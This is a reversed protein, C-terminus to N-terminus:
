GYEWRGLADVEFSAGWRDSGAPTVPELPVERWESDSDSVPRFRLAGQLRDHGEAFLIARVEVREGRVRKVDHRGGDIQPHIESIVM